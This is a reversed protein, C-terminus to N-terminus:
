LTLKSSNARIEDLFGEPLDGQIGASTVTEIYLNLANLSDVPLRIYDSIFNDDEIQIRDPDEEEEEFAEEEGDSDEDPNENEHEAEAKLVADEQQKADKRKLNLKVKRNIEAIIYFSVRLADANGARAIYLLAIAWVNLDRLLIPTMSHLPIGPGGEREPDHSYTIWQEVLQEPVQEVLAGDTASFAAVAVYTMAYIMSTDLMQDAQRAEYIAKASEFIEAAANPRKSILASLIVLSSSKDVYELVENTGFSSCLEIVNQVIEDNDAFGPLKLIISSIIDAIYTFRCFLGETLVREIYTVLFQYLEAFPEPLVPLRSVLTSVVSLFNCGDNPYQDIVETATTLILEVFGQLAEVSLSNLIININDLLLDWTQTLEVEAEREDDEDEQALALTQRWDEILPTIIELGYQQAADFNEIIFQFFDSGVQMKMPSQIYAITQELLEDLPIEGLDLCLSVATFLLELSTTRLVINTHNANSFIQYAIDRLSTTPVKSKRLAKLLSPLLCFQSLDDRNNQILTDINAKEEEVDFGFITDLNLSEIIEIFQAGVAKPILPANKEENRPFYKCMFLFIRAEIEYVDTVDSNPLLETYDFFQNTAKVYFFLATRVYYSEKSLTPIDALEFALYIEPNIFLENVQENALIATPLIFQSIFEPSIFEAQGNRAFDMSLLILQVLVIDNLPSRNQVFYPLLSLVAEMLHPIIQTEYFASFEPVFKKQAGQFRATEGKFMEAIEGKMQILPDTVPADITLFGLLNTLISSVAESQLQALAYELYQDMLTTIDKVITPDFQQKQQELKVALFPACLECITGKESEKMYSTLRQAIHIGLKTMHISSEETFLAPFQEMIYGKFDDQSFYVCNGIIYILESVSENNFTPALSQIFEIIPTAVPIIESAAPQVEKLIADVHGKLIRSLGFLLKQNAVTEPQFIIELVSGLNSPDQMFPTIKELAEGNGDMAKVIDNPDIM